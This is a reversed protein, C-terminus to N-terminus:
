PFSYNAAIRSAYDLAWSIYRVWGAVRSAQAMAQKTKSNAAANPGLGCKTKEDVALPPASIDSSPLVCVFAIPSSFLTEM